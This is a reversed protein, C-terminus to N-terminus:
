YEDLDDLVQWWHVVDPDLPHQPPGLRVDLEGRNAADFIAAVTGPDPCPTVEPHDPPPHKQGEVKLRHELWRTFVHENDPDSDDWEFTTSRKM